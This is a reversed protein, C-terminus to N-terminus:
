NIKNKDSLIKDCSRTRLNYIEFKKNPYSKNQLLSKFKGNMQNFVIRSFQIEEIQFNNYM